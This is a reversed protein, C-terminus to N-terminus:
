RTSKGPSKLDAPACRSCFWTGEIGRNLAVGEGFCGVGGCEVCEHQEPGPATRSDGSFKPKVGQGSPKPAQPQYTDFQM